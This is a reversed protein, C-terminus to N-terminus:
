VVKCSEIARAKTRRIRFSALATNFLCPYKELELALKYDDFCDTAEAM